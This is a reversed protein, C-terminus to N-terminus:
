GAEEVSGGDLQMLALRAREREAKEVLDPHPYPEGREAFIAVGRDVSEIFQAIGAPDDAERLADLDEVLRDELDTIRVLEAWLTAILAHESAAIEEIMEYTMEGGPSIGAARKLQLRVAAADRRLGDVLREGQAIHEGTSTCGACVIKEGVTIFVNEAIPVATGGCRGCRPATGAAIKIYTIGQM